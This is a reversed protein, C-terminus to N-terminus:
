KYGLRLLRLVGLSRVHCVSSRLSEDSVLGRHLTKSLLICLFNESLWSYGFLAQLVIFVERLEGMVGRYVCARDIAIGHFRFHDLVHQFTSMAVGFYISISTVLVVSLSVLNLLIEFHLRLM